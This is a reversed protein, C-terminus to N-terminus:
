PATAKPTAQGEPQETKTNTTGGGPNNTFFRQIDGDRELTCEDIDKITLNTRDKQSFFVTMCDLRRIIKDTAKNANDDQQAATNKASVLQQQVQHLTQNQIFIVILLALFTSLMFVTQALRFRRDKREIQAILDDTSAAPQLPKLPTM